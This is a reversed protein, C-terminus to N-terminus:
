PVIKPRDEGEVKVLVTLADQLENLNEIGNLTTDAAVFKLLLSLHRTARLQKAAQKGWKAYVVEELVDLRLTLTREGVETSLDFM